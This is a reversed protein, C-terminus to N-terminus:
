ILSEVLKSLKVADEKHRMFTPASVISIEKLLDEIEGIDREHTGGEKLCKDAEDVVMIDLFEKYCEAVGIPSVEYGKARMLKDAPGSFPKKGVIPSIAIVNKRKLLKKVGKMHLIPFISTIPNSPGILVAKSKRIAGEVDKTMKANEIGHYKVDLVDVEGRNTIWFDQFHMTGDPTRIVSSVDENCMPLVKQGVGFSKCLKETAETLSYGERLYESRIIHTARDLDGIMLKEYFGLGKLKQHTNFTDGKVGWWKEEDIVGSLAYIVSDIDPCVKNGSIWVDDATNVIISLEFVDKLGQLLKPTGTGGSLVCLM